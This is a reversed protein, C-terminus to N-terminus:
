PGEILVQHAITNNLYNTVSARWVFETIPTLRVGVSVHGSGNMCDYYTYSHAQAMIRVYIDLGVDMVQIVAEM